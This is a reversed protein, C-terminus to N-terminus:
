KHILTFNGGGNIQERWYGGNLCSIHLPKREEDYLRVEYGRARLRKIWDKIIYGSYYETVM